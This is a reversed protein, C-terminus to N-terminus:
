GGKKYNYSAAVQGAKKGTKYVYQRTAKPCDATHLEAQTAERLFGPRSIDPL